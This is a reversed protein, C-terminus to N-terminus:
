HWNMPGFSFFARTLLVDLAAFSCPDVHLTPHPFGRPLYPFSIILPRHHPPAWKSHLRHHQKESTYITRVYDYADVRPGEAIM